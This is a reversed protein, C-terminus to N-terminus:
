PKADAAPGPEIPTPPAHETVTVTIPEFGQPLATLDEGEAHQVPLWTVTVDNLTGDDAVAVATVTGGTRAYTYTAGGLVTLDEGDELYSTVASIIRDGESPTRLPATVAAAILVAGMVAVTVGTAFELRSDAGRWVCAGTIVAIIGILGLPIMAWLWGNSPLNALTTWLEM